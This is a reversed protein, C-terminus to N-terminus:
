LANEFFNLEDISVEFLRSINRATRMDILEPNKELKAYTPRSMGLKGAAAEQSYRANKRAEKITLM